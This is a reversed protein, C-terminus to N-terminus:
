FLQRPEVRDLGELFSQMALEWHNSGNVSHPGKRSMQLLPDLGDDPMALDAIILSHVYPEVGAFGRRAARAALRAHLSDTLEM